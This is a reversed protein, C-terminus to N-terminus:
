VQIGPMRCHDPSWRRGRQGQCCLILGMAPWQMRSGPSDMAVSLPSSDKAGPAGLKHYIDCLCVHAAYIYAARVVDTLMERLPRRHDCRREDPISSARACAQELDQVNRLTIFAPGLSACAAHVTPALDIPSKGQGYVRALSALDM